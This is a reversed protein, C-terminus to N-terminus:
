KKRTRYVGCKVHHKVNVRNDIFFRDKLAKKAINDIVSKWDKYKDCNSHCGVTRFECKYCPSKRVDM